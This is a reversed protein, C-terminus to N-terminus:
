VYSEDLTRAFKHFCFILIMLKIAEATCKYNLKM